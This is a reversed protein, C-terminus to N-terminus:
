SFNYKLNSPIKLFMQGTMLYNACRKHLYLFAFSANTVSQLEQSAQTISFFCGLLNPSTTTAM